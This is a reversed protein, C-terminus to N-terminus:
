IMRMDKMKMYCWIFSRYLSTQFSSKVWRRQFFMFNHFRHATSNREKYIGARSPRHFLKASKSFYLRGRRALKLALDVECWESTRYYSKEFGGVDLAEKRKVSMNCAELFDCDGEYMVEYDNSTTSPAGCGSLRSPINRLKGLFLFDYFRKFLKYRFLDRNNRYEGTITTPGTVGVIREDKKFAQTVSELWNPECYVDDDILSVINGVSHELGKHRLEALNGKETILLIEFDTFTQFSLSTLTASLSEPRGYTCIVISVTKKRRSKDDIDYINGINFPMGTPSYVLSCGKDEDLRKLLHNIAGSPNNYMIHVM